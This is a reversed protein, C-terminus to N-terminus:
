PILYKRNRILCIQGIIIFSYFITDLSKVFFGYVTGAERPYINFLSPYLGLYTFAGGFFILVGAAIWLDEQAYIFKKVDVEISFLLHTYIIFLLFGEIDINIVPM